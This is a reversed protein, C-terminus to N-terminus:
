TIQGLDCPLLRHFRFTLLAPPSWLGYTFWFGPQASEKHTLVCAPSNTYNEREKKSSKYWFRLWPKLLGRRPCSVAFIEMVHVYLSHLMRLIRLPVRRRRGCLGGVGEEPNEPNLLSCPLACLAFKGM